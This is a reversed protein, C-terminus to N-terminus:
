KPKRAPNIMQVWGPGNTVGGWTTVHTSANEMWPQLVQFYGLGGVWIRYVQDMEYTNMEWLIDQFVKITTSARWRQYMDDYKPDIVGHTNIPSKSYYALIYTTADQAACGIVGCQTYHFGDWNASNYLNTLAVSDVAKYMLEINLNKKLQAAAVTNMDFLQGSTATANVTIKMGDAYGAETLLQKAKVPDYQYWPGSEELKIPLERGMLHWPMPMGPLMNGESGGAWINRRDLAMSIARRVRIDNFPAKNAQFEYSAQGPPGYVLDVQVGPVQKELQSIEGPTQITIDDLQGTVFASKQANPDSIYVISKRDVYPLGKLWFEPNKDLTFKVRPEDVTIVFPGPSIVKKGWCNQKDDYCEKSFIGFNHHTLAYLFEAEPQSLTIKVTSRDTAEIKAVREFTTKMVGQAMTEYFFKVDEATVQRDSRTMPAIAPWLVGQRIHFVWTLADPHEWTQFIGPVVVTTTNYTRTGSCTSFDQRGVLSCLGLDQLLLMGYFNTRSLIIFRTPDYFSPTSSGVGKNDGGYTAKEWLRLKNRDYKYFLAAGPYSNVYSADTDQRLPIPVEIGLPGGTKPPVQGQASPAAPTPAPTTKGPAPTPTATPAPAPATSPTASPTTPAPTKTSSACAVGLLLVFALGVLLSGTLRVHRHM